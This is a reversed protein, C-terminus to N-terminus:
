RTRNYKLTLKMGSTYLDLGGAGIGQIPIKIYPEAQLSLVPSLQKRYGVSANLIGLFHQNDNRFFQSGEPWPGDYIIDYDETLMFYTSFGASLVFGSAEYGKLYYSLNIPIDIVDCNADVRDLTWNPNSGPYSEIGEDAFYVKKSYSIGGSLSLKSSLHYETHLGVTYGPDEVGKLGVTSFDPSFELGFSWRSKRFISDKGAENVESPEPQDVKMLQTNPLVLPFELSSSIPFLLSPGAYFTVKEEAVPKDESNSKDTSGYNVDVNESNEGDDTPQLLVVPVQNRSENFLSVEKPDILALGNSSENATSDPKSTKMPYSRERMKEYKATENGGTLGLDDQDNIPAAEGNPIYAEQIKVGTLRSHSEESVAEGTTSNFTLGSLLTNMTSDSNPTQTLTSEQTIKDFKAREAGSVPDLGDQDNKPANHDVKAIHVGDGEGITLSNEGRNERHASLDHSTSTNNSPQYDSAIVQSTEDTLQTNGNTVVGNASNEQTVTELRTTSGDNDVATLGEGQSRQAQEVTSRETPPREESDSNSMESSPMNGNNINLYWVTGVGGMLFLLIILITNLNFWSKSGTSGGLGAGKLKNQMDSWGAAGNSFSAKKSAEQFIKDLDKDKM